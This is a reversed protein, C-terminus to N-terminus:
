NLSVTTMKSRVYLALCLVGVLFIIDSAAIDNGSTYSLGMVEPGGGIRPSSGGSGGGSDGGVKPSWGCYDGTYSKGAACPDDSSSSNKGSTPTPTAVTTSPTNTPSTGPQGVRPTATPIVPTATPNQQPPIDTPMTGRDIIPRGQDRGWWDASVKGSNLVFSL